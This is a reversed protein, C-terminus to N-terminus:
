RKLSPRVGSSPQRSRFRELVASKIPAGAAAVASPAVPAAAGGSAPAAPLAQAPTPEPDPDTDAEPVFEPPPATAPAPVQLSDFMEHFEEERVAQQYGLYDIQDFAVFFLRGADQSGALRGKFALFEHDVRLIAQICIETGTRTVLMLNHHVNGPIHRLLAAWASSQM